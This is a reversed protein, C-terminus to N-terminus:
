ANFRNRNTILEVLAPNTRILNVVGAALGEVLSEDNSAEFFGREHLLAHIAEHMIVKTRVGEGVVNNNRIKILGLNYDVTAGVEQGDLILIEDTPEIRYNVADVLINKLM